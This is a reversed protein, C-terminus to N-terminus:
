APCRCRPARACRCWCSLFYQIGHWSKCKSRTTPILGTERANKAEIQTWATFDFLCWGAFPDSEDGKSTMETKGKKYILFPNVVVYSIWHFDSPNCLFVLFKHEFLDRVCDVYQCFMQINDLYIKRDADTCNEDRTTVHCTNQFARRMRLTWDPSFVHVHKNQSTNRLFLASLFMIESSCLWHKGENKIAGKWFTGTITGLMFTKGKPFFYPRETNPLEPGSLSSLFPQAKICNELKKMSSAPWPFEVFVDNPVDPTIKDTTIDTPLTPLRLNGHLLDFFDMSHEKPFVWCQPNKKVIAQFADSTETLGNDDYDIHERFGHRKYFQCADQNM